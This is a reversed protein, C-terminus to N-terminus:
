CFRFAIASAPALDHSVDDIAIDVVRVHAVNVAFEACKIPRFAVLVMVHERELLDILFEVLKRRRASNLNQHLTPVMRFQRALPLDFMQPSNTILLVAAPSEGRENAPGKLRLM